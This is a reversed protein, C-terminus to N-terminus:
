VNILLYWSVIVTPTLRISLPEKIIGGPPVIGWREYMQFWNMSGGGGGVVHM